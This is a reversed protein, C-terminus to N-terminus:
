LPTVEKKVASILGKNNVQLTWVTKDPSKLELGIPTWPEVPKAVHKLVLIRLEEKEKSSLARKFLIRIEKLNMRMRSDLGLADKVESCLQILDVEIRPRPFTYTSVEDM